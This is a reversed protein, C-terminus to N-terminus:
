LEGCVCRVFSENGYRIIYKISEEGRADGVLGSIARCTPPVNYSRSALLLISFINKRRKPSRHPYCAFLLLTPPPPLLSFESKGGRAVCRECFPPNKLKLLARSLFGLSKYENEEQKLVSYSLYSKKHKKEEGRLASMFLPIATHFYFHIVIKNNIM